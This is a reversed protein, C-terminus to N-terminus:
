SPGLAAVTASMGSFNGGTEIEAVLVSTDISAIRVIV